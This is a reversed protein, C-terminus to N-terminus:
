CKWQFGYKWELALNANTLLIFFMESSIEDSNTSADCDTHLDDLRTQFYNRLGFQKIMTVSM